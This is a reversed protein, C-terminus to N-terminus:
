VCQSYSSVLKEIQCYNVIMLSILEIESLKHLIIKHFYLISYM